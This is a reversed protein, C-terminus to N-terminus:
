HSSAAAKALVESNIYSVVAATEAATRRTVTPQFIKGAPAWGFNRVDWPGNPLAASDIGPIEKVNLMEMARRTETHCSVCDTNFFHSKSPDAILDLIQNTQETSPAPTVFLQSTSVGKRQALPVDATPIAANKCTIPNLNNTHPEPIVRPAQGAGQLEQAFQKGDLTPGHVGVFKGTPLKLISLFIWPRPAGAPLGAIAMANLRHGAIHKELFSLLEQRYNSATTADALGPHVGLPVGATTVKNAGLQGNSLKTRLAALDAVISRFDNLDPEPRPLCGLQGPLGPLAARFDYILHAAIDHVVPTGDPNRTVPQIILRIEPSQGFQARVESSLGPAGADIRIGAVFWADISQAEAPLGIRSQTGAVQAEQSAAISVFDRFASDPWVPDRKSSDQGNSTTIDRVAILKTFDEAGAPAPFLISVDDASLPAIVQGQAPAAGPSGKKANGGKNTCAFMGCAVLLAIWGLKPPRYSILIPDRM